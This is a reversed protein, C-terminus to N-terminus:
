NKQLAKYLENRVPILSAEQCNGDRSYLPGIINRRARSSSADAVLSKQSEQSWSKQFHQMSCYVDVKNLSKFHKQFYFTYRRDWSSEAQMFYLYDM